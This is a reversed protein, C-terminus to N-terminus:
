KSVKYTQKFSTGSIIAYDVGPTNTTANYDYNALWDGPKGDMSGWSTKITIPETLQVVHVAPGDVRTPAVFETKDALTEADVNYTKAVKADSAIPWQNLQGREYVPQGNADLRQAVWHGQEVTEGTPNELTPVSEGAPDTVKRFKVDYLQKQAPLVDSDNFVAQTKAVSQEVTLDPAAAAAPAPQEPSGDNAKDFSKKANEWRTKM